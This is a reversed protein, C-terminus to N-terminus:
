VFSSRPHWPVHRQQWLPRFGPNVKAQDRWLHLCRLFSPLRARPPSLGVFLGHQCIRTPPQPSPTCHFTCPLPLPRPSVHSKLCLTAVARLHLLFLRRQLNAHSDSAWKINTQLGPRHSTFVFQPQWATFARAVCIPRSHLRKPRSSQLV